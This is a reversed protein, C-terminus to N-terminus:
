FVACKRIVKKVVDRGKRKRLATLIYRIGNHLAINKDTHEILLTILRNKWPLLIPHKSNSTMSSNGIRGARRIIRKRM